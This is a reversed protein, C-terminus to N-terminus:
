YRIPSKRKCNFSKLTTQSISINIRLNNIQFYSCQNQFYCLNTKYITKFPGIKSSIYCITYHFHLLQYLVGSKKCGNNTENHFKLGHGHIAKHQSYRIFFNLLDLMTVWKFHPDDLFFIWLLLWFFLDSEEINSLSKFLYSIWIERFVLFKLQCKQFHNDVNKTQQLYFVKRGKWLVFSRLSKLIM